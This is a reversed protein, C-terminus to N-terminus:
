KVLKTTAERDGSNIKVLYVGKSLDSVNLRFDTKNPTHQMIVKGTIDYVRLNDITEDASINAINNVPNPYLSVKINDLFKIEDFSIVSATQYVATVTMDSDINLYRNGNIIGPHDVGAYQESSNWGDKTFKLETSSAQLPLTVEWIGDGDDDAM